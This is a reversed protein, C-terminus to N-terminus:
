RSGGVKMALWWGGYIGECDMFEKVFGAVEELIVEMKELM